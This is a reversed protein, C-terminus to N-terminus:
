IVSSNWLPSWLFRKPIACLKMWHFCPKNPGICKIELSVALTKLFRFFIRCLNVPMVLILCFTTPMCRYITTQIINHSCPAGIFTYGTCTTRLIFWVFFPLSCLGASQGKCSQFALLLYEGNIGYSHSQFLSGSDSFYLTGWLGYTKPDGLIDGSWGTLLRRSINRDICM